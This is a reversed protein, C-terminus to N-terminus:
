RRKWGANQCPWNSPIIAPSELITLGAVDSEDGDITVTRAARCYGTMGRLASQAPRMHAHWIALMPPFAMRLLLRGMPAGGMADAQRTTTEPNSTM